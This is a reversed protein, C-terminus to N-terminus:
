DMEIRNLGARRQGLRVLCLGYDWERRNQTAPIFRLASVLFGVSALASQRYLDNPETQEKWFHLRLLLGFKRKALKVGSAVFGEACITRRIQYRHQRGGVAVDFFRSRGRWFGRDYLDTSRCNAPKGGSGTVYFRRWLRM